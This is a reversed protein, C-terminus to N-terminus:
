EQAGYEKLIGQVKEYKNEKAYDLATKGNRDKFNMSAAAGFKMLITVMEIDGRMSAYILSTRGFYDRSNIDAGSQLAKKVNQVHGKESSFLLYDSIPSISYLKLSVLFLLLFRM